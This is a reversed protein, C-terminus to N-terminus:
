SALALQHGFYSHVWQPVVGTASLAFGGGIINGPRLYCSLPALLAERNTTCKYGRGSAAAARAHQQGSLVSPVSTKKNHGQWFRSAAKQEAKEAETRMFAPRHDVFCKTWRGKVSKGNAPQQLHAEYTFSESPKSFGPVPQGPQMVRVVQWLWFDLKPLDPASKAWPGSPAPRTIVFSGPTVLRAQFGIDRPARSGTTCLGVSPGRSLGFMEAGSHRKQAVGPVANVDADLLAAAAGREAQVAPSQVSQLSQRWVRTHHAAAMKACKSQWSERYGASMPRCSAQPIASTSGSDVACRWLTQWASQLSSSRTPGM